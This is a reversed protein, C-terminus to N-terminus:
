PGESLRMGTQLIESAEVDHGGVRVRHVHIWEDLAAVEVAEGIVRGVTGPAAFARERTLTAKVIELHLTGFAATPHGWPSRFPTYDAARVFNVIQRAPFGWCIRGSQPIERGFYRRRSLDQEIAPIPDGRSAAAVLRLILPVGERVCRASVTMGTDSERIEFLTRYAIPGADVSPTMWHVTVGHRAEGHYIAWSPANIGAYDPLPGPHLNFSGIRPAELVPKPIISLSHVNLLLDV